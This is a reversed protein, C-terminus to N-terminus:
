GHPAENVRQASSIRLLRSRPSPGLRTRSVHRRDTRACACPMTCSRRTLARAVISVLLPVRSERSRSCSCSRDAVVRRIARNRAVRLSVRSPHSASGRAKDSSRQELARRGATSAAFSMAVREHRPLRAPRPARARLATATRERGARERGRSRMRRLSCSIKPAFVSRAPAWLLLEDRAPSSRLFVGRGLARSFSM